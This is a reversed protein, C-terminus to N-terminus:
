KDDGEKMDWITRQIYNLFDLTGIKNTPLGDEDDDDLKSLVKYSDDVPDLIILVAQEHRLAIEEMLEETGFHGLDSIDISNEMM